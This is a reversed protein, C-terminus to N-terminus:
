RSHTAFTPDRSARARTACRKQSTAVPNSTTAKQLVALKRKWEGLRIKGISYPERGQVEIARNLVKPATFQNRPLALGNELASTEVPTLRGNTAIQLKPQALM